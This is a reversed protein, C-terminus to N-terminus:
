RIRRGHRSNLGPYGRRHTPTPTNPTPKDPTSPQQKKWRYPVNSGGGTARMLEDDDLEIAGAPNPPLQALEEDSLGARYAEDKWARAINM